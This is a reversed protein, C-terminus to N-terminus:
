VTRSIDEKKIRVKVAPHCFAMIVLREGDTLEEEPKHSSLLLNINSYYEPLENLSKTNKDFPRVEGISLTNNDFAELIRHYWNATWGNQGAGYLLKQIQKKDQEEQKAIKRLDSMTPKLEITKNEQLPM